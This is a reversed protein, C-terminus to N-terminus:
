SVVMPHRVGDDAAERAEKEQQLRNAESVAILSDSVVQMDLEITALWNEVDGVEKLVNNFAQYTNVWTTTQKTFKKAESQIEKLKSEIKHQNRWVNAVDANLVNLAVESFKTAHQEGEIRVRDLKDRLTAKAAQHEALCDRLSM